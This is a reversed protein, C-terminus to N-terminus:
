HDSPDRGLLDAVAGLEKTRYTKKIALRQLDSKMPVFVLETAFDLNDNIHRALVGHQVCQDYLFKRVCMYNAQTRKLLGFKAKGTKVLYARFPAKCRRKVSRRTVITVDVTDLAASSEKDTVDDLDLVLDTNVYDVVDKIEQDVATIIKEAHIRHRNFHKFLAIGVKVIGVGIAVTQGAPSMFALAM